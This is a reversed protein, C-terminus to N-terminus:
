NLDLRLKGFPNGYIIRGQHDLQVGSFLSNHRAGGVVYHFRSEGTGFDVGELTWLGDRAGVTYIM